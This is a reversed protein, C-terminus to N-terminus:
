DCDMETGSYRDCGMQTGTVAMQTGSYRDSNM